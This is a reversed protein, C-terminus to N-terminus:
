WVYHVLRRIEDLEVAAAVTESIALIRERM